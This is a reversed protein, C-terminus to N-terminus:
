GSAGYDRVFLVEDRAPPHDGDKSGPPAIPRVSRVLAAQVVRGPGARERVAWDVLAPGVNLGEANEGLKLWRYDRYPGIVPNRKEIRWRGIRGDAYRFRVETGIVVRSPDPAFVSWVQRAGLANLVPDDVKMLDEKFSSPPLNALAIAILYVAIVISLVVRSRPSGGLDREDV